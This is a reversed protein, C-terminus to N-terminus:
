YYNIYDEYTNFNERHIQFYHSSDPDVHTVDVCTLQGHPYLFSGEVMPMFNKNYLDEFNAPLSAECLLKAQPSTDITAFRKRLLAEARQEQTDETDEQPQRLPQGSPTGAPSAM